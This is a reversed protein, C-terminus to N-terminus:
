GCTSSYLFSVLTFLIILPVHKPVVVGTSKDVPFGAVLNGASTSAIMVGFKEPGSIFPLNVILETLITLGPL